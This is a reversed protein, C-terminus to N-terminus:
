KVTAIQPVMADALAEEAQPTGAVHALVAGKESDEPIAKFAPPLKDPPVFEWPGAPAATRYWRGSFLVYLHESPVDMFVDGGTNDAYLLDGGVLTTWSAQGEFVILEAPGTVAIVKPPKTPDYKPNEKKAEAALAQEDDKPTVEGKAAAAETAQKEMRDVLAAVDPSPKAGPTWPGKPDKAEYWGAGGYLYWAATAPDNLVISPTNVIRKLKTGEIDLAKPEGDYHLLMAPEKEILIQPPDNKFKELTQGKRQLVAIGAVFRDYDMDNNWNPAADQIVAALMKEQDPTAGPFRVRTIKINTFHVSRLERDINTKAEAWVAGFTPEESGRLTLSIASRVKLTTGAYEEMQPQYVVITGKSHQVERPWSEPAPAQTPTQARANPVNASVVIFALSLAAAIIAFSRKPDMAAGGPRIDDPEPTPLRTRHVWMSGPYIDPYWGGAGMKTCDRGRPRVSLAWEGARLGCPPMAGDERM